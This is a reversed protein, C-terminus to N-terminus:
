RCSVELETLFSSQGKPPGVSFESFLTQGSLTLGRKQCLRSEWNAATNVLVGNGAIASLVQDLAARDYAACRYQAGASFPICGVSRASCLGRWQSLIPERSVPLVNGTSTGPRMSAGNRVRILRRCRNWSIGGFSRWEKKLRSISEIRCRATRNKRLAIKEILGTLTPQFEHIWQRRFLGSDFTLELYYAHGSRGLVPSSSRRPRARSFLLKV